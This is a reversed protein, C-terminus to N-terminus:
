LVNNHEKMIDLMSKESVKNDNSKRKKLERFALLILRKVMATPNRTEDECLALLRKEDDGYINISAM